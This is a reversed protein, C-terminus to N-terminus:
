VKFFIQGEVGTEPLTSGYVETTAVLKHINNLSIDNITVVSNDQASIDVKHQTAGGADITEINVNLGAIIGSTQDHSVKLLDGVGSDIAEAMSARSVLVQKATGGLTDDAGVWIEYTNDTENHYIYLERTGILKGQPNDKGMNLRVPLEM